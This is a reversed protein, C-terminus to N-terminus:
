PDLSHSDSDANENESHILIRQIRLLERRIELQTERIESVENTLTQVSDIIEADEKADEEENEAVMEILTEIDASDSSQDADRKSRRYEIWSKLLRFILILAVVLGTGLAGLHEAIPALAGLDQINTDM